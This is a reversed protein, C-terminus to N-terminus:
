GKAGLYRAMVALVDDIDIPKGVHDNMGAELCKKIDEQFVDATMAIIPIARVWPNDCQRILKAAELGNLEPMHVDMLVIDYQKPNATLREYAIRGNEAFDIAMQTPELLVAIIERNIAIDEAILVRKGTFDHGHDIVAGDGEQQAPPASAASPPSEVTVDFSFCSGKGLESTVAIASNMMEVIQQSIALGLGTGGFKRSISSDGQEFPKFLKAMQEESMGIGTDKVEFRLRIGADDKSLVSIALSVKGADPTFKVANGLLNVIVQRLRQEDAKITAPIGEDIAMHLQQGKAELQPAILSSITGVTKRLDFFDPSLELKSAEIKSMDLVDNIVGLLHKSADDVIGFCYDKRGIDKANKGITTMGIIANMPTRMEHSMRSLFEGKMRSSNEAIEKERLLRERDTITTFMRQMMTIMAYVFIAGFFFILAILLAQAAVEDEVLFVVVYALYGFLFFVMMIFCAAYIKEGFLKRENMQKRLRSLAHSFKVISYLMIFAGLSVLAICLFRM